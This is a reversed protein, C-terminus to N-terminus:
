VRCGGREIEGLDIITTSPETLAGLDIIEYNPNKLYGLDTVLPVGGAVDIVYISRECLPGCDFVYGSIWDIKGLDNLSTDVKSYYQLGSYDTKVKYAGVEMNEGTATSGVKVFMYIFPIDSNFNALPLLQTEEPTLYIPIVGDKPKTITLKKILYAQEDPTERSPKFAVFCENFKSLDVPVENGYEDTKTIYLEKYYSDNILIREAM